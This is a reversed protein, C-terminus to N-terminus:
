GRGRLGSAVALLLYAACFLAIAMPLGHPNWADMAAGLGPLGITMGCAYMMVFAANAAALDTGSFRSGLHVLGVTYLGAVFGGWIVLVASLLWFSGAVLPMALAGALGVAACVALLWVRNVRDALLGLPIQLLVNGIAVMSVLKTAQAEVLGLRLGYLALFAMGGSEVAGFALVGFTAVPAALIFTFTGRSAEEELEPSQGHALLIPVGACFLIAMGIGFPLFGQSGARGLLEPGIAFGISLVTAYIGMVLGRRGRPALTNIWFETLVFMITLAGHFLVRLGFWTWFPEILFFLPLSLSAVVVAVMLVPVAGFRRALPTVWPGILLVVLGAVANNLGIMTSSIGRAEAVLSLLPLGLSLGIGVSATTSIVAVLARLRAPNLRDDAPTVPPTAPTAASM